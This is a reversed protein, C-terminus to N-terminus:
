RGGFGLKGRATARVADGFRRIEDLRPPDLPGQRVGEADAVLEEFSRAGCLVVDVAPHSVAFRYCEPPSMPGLGSAPKLLRGWRTATYSVIGPRSEPSLTAFIESEAGRHAANYRIMLVDLALEDALRRALPRDHCSIATARILGEDRLKQMERWTSDRVYWEAQVWFVHFVDLRDVGLARVTKEWARRVSWGFPLMAGAALVLQDRHGAASLRKLGEVMPKMRPTVFFYDIGLEHFAREVAEADIGFSGALGLKGVELGSRGLMVRPIVSGPSLV